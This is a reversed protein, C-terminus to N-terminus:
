SALSDWTARLGADLDYHPRWDLTSRALAIDACLTARDSRRVRASDSVSRLPRQLVRALTAVLDDVSHDCGTGINLIHPPIAPASVACIFAAVVDAVYVFDRRPSLNGLRIDDGARAQELIEPIVHPNTEGPGYVNFLRLIVSPITTERSFRQVLREAFLKSEGYVDDPGPADLERCITSDPPYVAATSAFVLRRVGGSARIGELLAATGVTNISLTAAPDQNCLPIFHLGALHFIWDPQLDRVLGTVQEQERVDLQFLAVRSPVGSLLELRGTSLDDVAYVEVGDRVLAACLHHGIFGAGGTVLARTV